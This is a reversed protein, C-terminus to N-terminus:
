PSLLSLERLALDEDIMPSLRRMRSMEGTSEAAMRDQGLQPTRQGLAEIGEEITM